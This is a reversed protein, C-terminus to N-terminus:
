KSPVLIFSFNNLNHFSSFSVYFWRSKYDRVNSKGKAKGQPLLRKCDLFHTAMYYLEEKTGKFSYLYKLIKLTPLPLQNKKFIIALSTIQAYSNPTLQFPALKLDNLITVLYPHFPFRLDFELHQPSVAVFGTPPFAVHDGPSPVMVCSDCPLSYESTCSRLEDIM